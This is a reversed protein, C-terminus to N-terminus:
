DLASGAMFVNNHHVQLKFLRASGGVLMELYVLHTVGLDRRAEHRRRHSNQQPRASLRSRCRRSRRRLAFRQGIAPELTPQESVALM